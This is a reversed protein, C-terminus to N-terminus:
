AAGFYGLVAGLLLAGLHSVVLAKMPHDEITNFLRDLM